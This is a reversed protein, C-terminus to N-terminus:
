HDHGEGPKSEQTGNKRTKIKKPNNGDIRYMYYRYMKGKSAVTLMAEWAHPFTNLIELWIMADQMGGDVCAYQWRILSDTTVPAASSIVDFIQREKSFVIIRQASDCIIILANSTDQYPPNVLVSDLELIEFRMARFRMDPQGRAGLTALLLAFFLFQKM